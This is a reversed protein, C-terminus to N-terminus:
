STVPWYIRKLPVLARTESDLQEYNEVLLRRLVQLDILNTPVSAREAEYRADKTFSGTSVYLCKDGSKRGGLFARIKESNMPTGIRHKVEVFIRPEQLGLGDPSAFIDVGRDSGPAAITTRYGMARLIGAVLNQLQKWDLRNIADEIFEDAKEIVEARVDVESAEPDSEPPSPKSIDSVASGIAMKQAQLEEAVEASIKFLTLISGLVNRAAVSLLDRQVQHLWKVRRIHPADDIIKPAWEYESAVSGLYYLRSDRDFTVIVDGVKIENLFRLLQSAWTQRWGPKTDPHKEEVLRLLDDKKMSPTLRGLDKDGLAVVGRSKFTEIHEADRGARVMWVNAM